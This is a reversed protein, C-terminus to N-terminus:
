LDKLEQDFRDSDADVRTEPLLGVREAMQLFRRAVIESALSIVERLDDHTAPRSEPKGPSRAYITGKALSGQLTKKCMVPDSEFREVEIVYFRKGDHEMIDCGLSAHPDAYKNVYDQINDADYTALDADTMGDAHLVAGQGQRVGIVIFGGDRLNAM